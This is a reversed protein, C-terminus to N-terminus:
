FDCNFRPEPLRLLSDLSQLLADPAKIEDTLALVSPQRVGLWLRTFAGIGAKMGDLGRTHGPEASCEPGLVVTYDGACGKWGNDESILTSIPDHISLNFAVEGRPLSTRALVGPLDLIRAQTYSLARIGVGKGGGSLM